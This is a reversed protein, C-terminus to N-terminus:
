RRPRCTTKRANPGGSRISWGTDSYVRSRTAHRSGRSSCHRARRPRQARREDRDREGAGAALPGVRLLAPADADRREVGGREAQRARAGGIREDIRDPGAAQPDRGVVARVLRGVGVHQELAVGRARRVQRHRHRRIRVRVLLELVGAEQDAAVPRRERRGRARRDREHRRWGVIVVVVGVEPAVRPGALVLQEVELGQAGIALGQDGQAAAVLDGPRPAVRDDVVELGARLEDHRRGRDIFAAHGVQEVDVGVDGAPDDVRHGRGVAHGPVRVACRRDLERHTGDIGRPFAGAGGALGDPDGGGRIPQRRDLGPM